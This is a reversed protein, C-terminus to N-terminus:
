QDVRVTRENTAVAVRRKIKSVTVTRTNQSIHIILPFDFNIPESYAIIDNESSFIKSVRIDASSHFETSSL